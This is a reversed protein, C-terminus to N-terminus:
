PVWKPMPIALRVSIAVRDRYTRLQNPGNAHDSRTRFRQAQVASKCRRMRRERQRTPQHSVEARNNEYRATSQTVSPMIARHAASYSLLKDTVLRRPEGGQGHFLKRFFGEAACRTLVGAHMKPVSLRQTNV